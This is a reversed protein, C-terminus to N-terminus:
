LQSEMKLNEPTFEGNLMQKKLAEALASKIRAESLTIATPNDGFSIDFLEEAPTAEILANALDNMEKQLSKWYEPDVNM